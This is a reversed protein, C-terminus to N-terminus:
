NIEVLLVHLGHKLAPQKLVKSSGALSWDSIASTFAVFSKQPTILSKLSHHETRWVALSMNEVVLDEKHAKKFRLEQVAKLEVKWNKHM